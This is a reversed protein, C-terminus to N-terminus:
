TATFTTVSDFVRQPDELEPTHGLDDFTVCSVRDFLRALSHVNEAPHSRDAAGWISLIPQSPAPLEGSHEMYIQYASALSWMAGHQFSQEACTCFHDIQEKRGVSLKYWQPMRRPALRKMILQGFIPRALIGKPDRGAKWRAFAETGGGQILCLRSVLNPARVTLDIACLSAACSFAFISNTGCIARIFRALDDNTEEFGFGYSHDAASFGMAPLEVVIVRFRKSFIEVLQDYVELTMPPDATFVIAQGEGAELYRYQVSETCFFKINSRTQAPWGSRFRIMKARGGWTDIRTGLKTLFGTMLRAGGTSRRGEGAHICRPMPFRRNGSTAWCHRHVGRGTCSGMRRRAAHRHRLNGDM